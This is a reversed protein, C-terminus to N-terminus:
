YYVKHQSNTIIKLKVKFIIIKIVELFPTLLWLIKKRNRTFYFLLTFYIVETLKFQQGKTNAYSIKQISKYHDKQGEGSDIKINTKQSEDKM